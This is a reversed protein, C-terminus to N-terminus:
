DKGLISSPADTLTSSTNLIADESADRIEAPGVTTGCPYLDGDVTPDSPLLVTIDNTSGPNVELCAATIVFCMKSRVMNRCSVWKSLANTVAFDTLARFQANNFDATAGATTRTFNTFSRAFYAHATRAADGFEQVFLITSNAEDIITRFRVLPFPPGEIGDSAFYGSNILWPTEPTQPSETDDACAILAATVLIILAAVALRGVKAFGWKSKANYRNSM